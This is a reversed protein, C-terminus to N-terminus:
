LDHLFVHNYVPMGFLSTKSAVKLGKCALSAYIHRSIKANKKFFFFNGEGPNSGPHMPQYVFTKVVLGGLRIALHAYKILYLSKGSTM